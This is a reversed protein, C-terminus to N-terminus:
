KNDSQNIDDWASRWITDQFLPRLKLRQMAPLATDVRPDGADGGPGPECM